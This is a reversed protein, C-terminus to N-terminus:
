GTLAAHVEGVKESRPKHVLLGHQRHCGSFPLVQRRAPWQDRDAGQIRVCVNTEGQKGALWKANSVAALPASLM